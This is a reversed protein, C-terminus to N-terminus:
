GRADERLKDEVIAPITLALSGLLLKRESPPRGRLSIEAMVCPLNALWMGVTQVSATGTPAHKHFVKLLADISDNMLGNLQEREAPTPTSFGVGPRANRAAMALDREPDNAQFKGM